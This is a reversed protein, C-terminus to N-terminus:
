FIGSKKRYEHLSHAQRQKSTWFENTFTPIKKGGISIANVITRSQKNEEEFVFDSLFHRFTKKM